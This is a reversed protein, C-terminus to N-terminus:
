GVRLGVAVLLMRGRVVSTVRPRNVDLRRSLMATVVMTSLRFM